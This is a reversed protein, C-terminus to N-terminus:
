DSPDLAECKNFLKFRLERSFKNSSHVLRVLSWMNSLSYTVDKLPAFEGDFWKVLTEIDSDNSTFSFLTDRLM